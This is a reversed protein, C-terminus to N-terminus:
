GLVRINEASMMKTLMAFIDFDIGCKSFESIVLGLFIVVLLLIPMIPVIKEMLKETISSSKPFFQYTESVKHLINASRVFLWVKRRSEIEKVGKRELIDKESVRTYEEM